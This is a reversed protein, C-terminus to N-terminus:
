IGCSPGMLADWSAEKKKMMQQHSKCAILTSCLIIKRGSHTHSARQRAILNKQELKQRTWFPPLLARLFVDIQFVVHTKRLWQKTTTHFRFYINFSKERIIFERSSTLESRWEVCVAFLVPAWLLRRCVGSTQSSNSEHPRLRCDRHFFASGGLTYHTQDLNLSLSKHLTNRKESKRREQKDLACSIEMRVLEREIIIIINTQSGGFKSMKM